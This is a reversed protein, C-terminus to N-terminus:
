STAPMLSVIPNALGERITLTNGMGDSWIVNRLNNPDSTRSPIGFIVMTGPTYLTQSVGTIQWAGRGLTGAALVDTGPDYALATVFVNPMKDGYVTWVPPDLTGATFSAPNSLRFVGGLGGVLLV